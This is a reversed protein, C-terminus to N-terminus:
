GLSSSVRVQLFQQQFLDLADLGLQSLDLLLYAEVGVSFAALVLVLGVLFFLCLFVDRLQVLPLLRPLEVVWGAALKHHCRLLVNAAVGRAAVVLLRRLLLQYVDALDLGVHLLEFQLRALQQKREVAAVM